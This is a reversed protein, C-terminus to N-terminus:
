IVLMGRHSGNGDVIPVDEQKPDSGDDVSMSSRKIFELCDAIAEAYFSQISYDIQSAQCVEFILARRSCTRQRGFQRRSSSRWGRKVTELGHIFFGLFRFLRVRFRILYFRCAHLRFGRMRRWKRGFRPSCM